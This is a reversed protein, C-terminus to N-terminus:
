GEGGEDNGPNPEATGGNDTATPGVRRQDPNRMPRQRWLAPAAEFGRARLAASLAAYTDPPLGRTYWNSVAKPGVGMLKAVATYGGLALIAEAASNIQMPM